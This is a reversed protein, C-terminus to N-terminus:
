AYEKWSKSAWAFADEGAQNLRFIREEGAGKEVDGWGLKELNAAIRKEGADKLILPHGRVAVLGAMWFQRDTLSEADLDMM